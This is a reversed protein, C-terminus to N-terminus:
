ELFASPSIDVSCRLCFGVVLPQQLQAKFVAPEHGMGSSAHAWPGTPLVM